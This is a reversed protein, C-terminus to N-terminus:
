RPTGMPEDTPPDTLMEKIMQKLEAISSEILRRDEIDQRIQRDVNFSYVDELVGWTKLFSQRWDDSVGELSGLLGELNSILKGLGIREAEYENLFELMRKYQRQNYTSNM